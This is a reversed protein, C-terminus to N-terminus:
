QGAAAQRYFFQQCFSKFFSFYLAKLWVGSRKKSIKQCMFCMMAALYALVAVAVLQNSLEAM